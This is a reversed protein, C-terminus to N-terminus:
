RRDFLLFLGVPFVLASVVLVGFRAMPPAGLLWAAGQVGLFVAAAVAARRRRRRAAPGPAAKPLLGRAGSWRARRRAEREAR